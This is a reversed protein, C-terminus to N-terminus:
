RLQRAVWDLAAAVDAAREVEPLTPRKVMVVPLKLDRAAAIKQYTASGGSNKSM